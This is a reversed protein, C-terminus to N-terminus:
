KHLGTSENRDGRRSKLALDLELESATRIIHVQQAELGIGLERGQIALHGIQPLGVILQFTRNGCRHGHGGILTNHTGGWVCVCVCVCVCVVGDNGNVVTARCTM